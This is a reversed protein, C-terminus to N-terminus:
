ERGRLIAALVRPNRRGHVVAVVLLPKRDPAYAIVFERVLAFRLPRSTLDPRRYGQYPSAALERFRDFIETLVRDAGDPSQDAIFSSIEDLDDFAQPHLVINRM